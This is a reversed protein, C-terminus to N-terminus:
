WCRTWRGARGDASGPAGPRACALTAAGAAPSPSAAVLPARSAGTIRAARLLGTPDTAARAAPSRGRQCKLAPRAWGGPARWTRAPPHGRASRVRADLWLAQLAKKLHCLPRRATAPMGPGFPNPIASESHCAWGRSDSGRAIRFDPPLSPPGPAKSSMSRTPSRGSRQRNEPLWPRIRVARARAWIRRPRNALARQRAHSRVFQACFGARAGFEIQAPTGCM